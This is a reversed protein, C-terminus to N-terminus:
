PMKMQEGFTPLSRIKQLVVHFTSAFHIADAGEGRTPGAHQNFTVSRTPSAHLSMATHLILYVANATYHSKIKQRVLQLPSLLLRMM